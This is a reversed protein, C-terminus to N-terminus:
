FSPFVSSLDAAQRQVAQMQTSAHDDVIEFDVANARLTGAITSLDDGAIRQREVMAVRFANCKALILESHRVRGFSHAPLTTHELSEKTRQCTLAVSDFDAAVSRLQQPRVAILEYSM